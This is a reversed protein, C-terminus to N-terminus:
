PHRELNSLAERALNFDPELELARRYSALADERRGLMQLINGKNFHGVAYRPNLELAKDIANLGEQLRAFRALSIALNNWAQVAKPNMNVAKSASYYAQEIRGTKLYIDSLNTWIMDDYPFLSSARELAKLAKEYDGMGVFTRGLGIYGKYYDPFNRTLMNYFKQAGRLEKKDLKASAIGHLATACDPARRYASAWLTEARQWEKARNFTLIFLMSIALVQTLLYGKHNRKFLFLAITLCFGVLPLYTRRENVLQVLPIFSSEPALTIFWWGMVFTWLPFKKRFFFSFLLLLAVVPVSFVPMRWLPVGVPFWGRTTSFNHEISLGIPYLVKILYFLLVGAQNLLNESVPRVPSSIHFTEVEFLFRRLAFYGVAVVCYLFYSKWKLKNRPNLTFDYLFALVPFVIASEKALLGLMFILVSLTNQWGRESLHFYFASLVMTTAILSSRASQYIVTESCLPHVAFVVAPVFSVLSDSTIKKVILFVLLVNLTHFLFQFGHWLSMNFGAFRYNLSYSWLTLPRYMRAERRESFLSPDRLFDRIGAPSLVAPNQYISHGDDYVFPANLAPLYVLIAVGIALIPFLYKLFNDYREM